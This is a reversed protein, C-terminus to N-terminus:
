FYKNIIISCIKKHITKIDINTTNILEVRDQNQKAISLYKERVRRHFDINESEFRDATKKTARKLGLFPDIDLLITLNPLLSANSISNITSLLKESMQKGGSQYAITSDIYRDCLVFRNEKLAPIVVEELHQSRDAAFLLLESIPSLQKSEKELLIQRIKGGIKTGGPERTVVVEKGKSKLFDALLSIQTTKGSGEPGEFTIFLKNLM